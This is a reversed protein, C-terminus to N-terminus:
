NCERSRRLVAMGDRSIRSRRVIGIVLQDFMYGRELISKSTVWRVRHKKLLWEASRGVMKKGLAAVVAVGVTTLRVLV